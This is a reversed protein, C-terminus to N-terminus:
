LCLFTLKNKSNLLIDIIKFCKKRDINAQLHQVQVVVQEARKGIACKGVEVIQSRNRNSRILQGAVALQEFKTAPRQAVQLM